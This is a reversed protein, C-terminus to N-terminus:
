GPLLAGGILKVGQGQQRLGTAKARMPQNITRAASATVNATDPTALSAEGKAVRFDSTENPTGSTTVAGAATQRGSSSSVTTPSSSRVGVAATPAHTASPRTATNVAATAAASTRPSFGSHLQKPASVERRAPAPVRTRFPSSPRPAPAHAIAPGPSLM